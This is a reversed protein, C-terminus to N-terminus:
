GLHPNGRHARAHRVNGAAAARECAADLLRRGLEEEQRAHRKDLSTIEEPPGEQAALGAATGLDSTPGATPTPATVHWFVLPVDLRRASWLACAVVAGANAQGEVCAYVKNM